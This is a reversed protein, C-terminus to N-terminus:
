ILIIALFLFGLTYFDKSNECVITIINYFDSYFWDRNRLRDGESEM